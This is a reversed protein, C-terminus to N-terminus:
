CSTVCISSVYVSLSCLSPGVFMHSEALTPKISPRCTCRRGLMLGVNPARKKESIPAGVQVALVHIGASKVKMAAEVTADKDNSNGDTLFVVVNPVDNRDGRNSTFMFDVLHDLAAATNTTGRIYPMNRAVNQM